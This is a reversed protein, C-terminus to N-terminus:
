FGIRELIAAPVHSRLEPYTEILRAIDALDKLRKSARREPDEAAWIKGQLLDGLDAVPLNMGLVNRVQARGAFSGYHPDRQIQVRVASGPIEVNLSHPHEEVGFRKRVLMATRELDQAAVAVDLDLSVVPEAWANVAQGDIVCWTIGNAEFLDAIQELVGADDMTVAKWYALAQM